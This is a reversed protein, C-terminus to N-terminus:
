ARYVVTFFKFRKVSGIEEEQLQEGTPRRDAKGGDEGKGGGVVGIFNPDSNENGFGCCTPFLLNLM